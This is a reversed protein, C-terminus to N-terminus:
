GGIPLKIEVYNGMDSLVPILLILGDAEKSFYIWLLEHETEFEVNGANQFSDRFTDIDGYEVHLYDSLAKASIGDTLIDFNETADWINQIYFETAEEDGRFAYNHLENVFNLTLSHKQFGEGDAEQLSYLISMVNWEVCTVEYTVEYRMNSDVDNWYNCAYDKLLENFPVQYEDYHEAIDPNSEIISTTTTLESIAPYHVLMNNTSLMNDIVRYEEIEAVINSETVETEPVTVETTQISAESTISESVFISSTQESTMEPTKSCASVVICPIIILVYFREKRM